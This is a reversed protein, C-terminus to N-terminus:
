PTAQRAPAADKVELHVHPYRGPVYRDVQSEFPLRRPAGIVTVSAEVADGRALDVAGIHLMVVRRQPASDPVIELRVDPYTRYLRYRRVRAVVGTVPSLVAAGKRLMVDAASTARSDRGRSHMVLYRLSRDRPRPPTFKTPNKCRGCVGTPRLAVGDEYSAEHFAVLVPDPAMLRLPVGGGTAFVPLLRPPPPSPPLTPEEVVAPAAVLPTPPPWPWGASRDVPRFLLVASGWVAANAVALVGLGVLWRRSRGPGAAFGEAM